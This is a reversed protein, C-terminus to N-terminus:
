CRHDLPAGPPVFTGRRRPDELSLATEGRVEGAGTPRTTIRAGRQHTFGARAVKRGPPVRSPASPHAGMWLEAQPGAAPSPQGLLEAIATCDRLMANIVEPAELTLARKGM